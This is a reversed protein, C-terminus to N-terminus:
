IPPSVHVSFTVRLTQAGDLEPEHFPSLLVLLWLGLYQKAM